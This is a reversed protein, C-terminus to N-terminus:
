TSAPRRASRRAYVIAGIGAVIAIATVAAAIMRDQDTSGGVGSPSRDPPKGAGFIGEEEANPPGPHSGTCADTTYGAPAHQKLYLTHDTGRQMQYDISTAVPGGAGGAESGPGLGVGIRDAVSGKLVREVQVFAFRSPPGVPSGELSLVRVYVVADARGAQESVSQQICSALAPVAAPVVSWSLALAALLARM